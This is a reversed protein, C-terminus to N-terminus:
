GSIGVWAERSRSEGLNAPLRRAEFGAARLLGGVEGPSFRRLGQRSRISSYDSALSLALAGRLRTLVRRPRASRPLFERLDALLGTSSPILDGLAIAGGPRLVRGAVGLLEQLGSPGLYQVVSFVVIGDVSGDELEALQPTDLVEVADTGAHTRGAFDRFHRSRDCLLLRLGADLYAPAGLAHGCGYDLLRDGPSLGLVELAAEAVALAEVQSREDPGFAAPPDEWFEQWGRPPASRM